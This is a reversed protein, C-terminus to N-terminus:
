WPVLIEDPLARKKQSYYTEFCYSSFSLFMMFSFLPIELDLKSITSLALYGFIMTAEYEDGM